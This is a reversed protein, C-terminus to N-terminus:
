LEAKKNAFGLIKKYNEADMCSFVCHKVCRISANRPADLTLAAEGFAKGESLEAVKKYIPVTAFGPKNPSMM